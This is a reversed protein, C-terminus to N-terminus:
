FQFRILSRRGAPRKEVMIAAVDEINMYARVMCGGVAIVCAMSPCNAPVFSCCIMVADPERSVIKRGSGVCPLIVVTRDCSTKPIMLVRAANLSAPLLLPIDQIRLYVMAANLSEQLM